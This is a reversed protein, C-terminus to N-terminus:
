FAEDMLPVRLVVHQSLVIFSCDVSVLATGERVSSSWPSSPSLCKRGAATVEEWGQLPWAWLEEVRHRPSLTLVLKQTGLYTGCKM